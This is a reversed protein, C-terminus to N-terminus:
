PQNRVLDVKPHSPGARDLDATVIGPTLIVPLTIVDEPRGAPYILNLPVSPRGFAKIRELMASDRNTFDAKVPIVGMERMRARMSAPELVAAKNALCTACWTATYDVYVTYGLSALEEPVGERYPAWPVGDDWGQARVYAVVSAPTIDHVQRKPPEYMHFSFAGGLGVIALAGAWTTLRGTAEWTLRIKGIMWAAMGLFGWFAVTWVVGDAGTQRGLILLLWVATGLLIFGMAQKFTVMWPGPKPIFKMWAPNAALLLYPSCMGLGAASFVLFSVLFAQTAAYVLATALFPATCATGLLTALLGKFFAGSYGERSSAEDLKGAASGPLVIEFVGFLSLSFIFLVSGLAIIVAPYQWPLQGIGSLVGFAWFWVMIGACFALGLRFVRKPDEGGQQIFSVIKISIVPLVCPTVNLILGGLFGFLLVLPLSTTSRGASTGSTADDEATAATPPAGADVWSAADATYHTAPEAAENPTDAVFTVTASAMEPAYCQGSDLCCQYQFLVRLTVPGAPFEQDTIQFPLRIQVEGSQERVKGINPMEREHAEPWREEAFTLGDVKEVYFRAPVLSDVGPNRDQIHHEEQVKILAVLEAPQAIGIKASSASIRSGKIYPAEALPQPLAARAEEFLKENVAAGIEGAVRLDLAASASVPVCSETCALADVTATIRAVRGPKATEDLHLEALCVIRGAHELYELGAAEDLTPVPFRLPGITLGPPGTFEVTTPFGTQLVIPDYIHWPEEVKLELALTASGGPALAARDALLRAEFKPGATPSGAQLFLWASLLATVANM